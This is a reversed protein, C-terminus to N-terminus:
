ENMIIYNTHFTFCGLIVLLLFCQLVIITFKDVLNYENGSPYNLHQEIYIDDLEGIGVLQYTM